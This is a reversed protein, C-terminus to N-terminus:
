SEKTQDANKREKNKLYIRYVRFLEKELDDASRLKLSKKLDKFESFTDEKVPIHRRYPIKIEEKDINTVEVM